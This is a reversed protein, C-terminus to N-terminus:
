GKVDIQIIDVKMAGTTEFIRDVIDDYLDSNFDQHILITKEGLYDFSIANELAQTTLDQLMFAPDFVFKARNVKSLAVSSTGSQTADIRLRDALNLAIYVRTSEGRNNFKASFIMSPTANLLFDAYDVTPPNGDAGPTVKLAYADQVFTMTIEVPDYKGQQAPVNFISGSTGILGLRKEELNNEQVFTFQNGDTRNALFDIQTPQIYFQEITLKGQMASNTYVEMTTEIMAETSPEDKDCQAFFVAVFLLLLGRTLSPSRQIM